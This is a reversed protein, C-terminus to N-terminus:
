WNVGSLASVSGPRMMGWSIPLVMRLATSWTQFMSVAEFGATGAGAPGGHVSIGAGVDVEEAIDLTGDAKVAQTPPTADANAMTLTATDSLDFAPTGNGTAFDAADIAIVSNNPVNESVILSGFFKGGEVDSKYIYDGTATTLLSLGLARDPHMIVVVNRRQDLGGLLAKVDTNINAPTNGSSATAAVGFLLGAPRVGPRQALNSLLKADILETTDNSISERIVREIAPASLNELEKSFTSIVALKYREFLDTALQGQKVPIVGTEGVFAGALTGRQARRPVVLSGNNGFELTTGRSSLANYVSVDLIEALFQGTGQQVLEAAWGPRGTTAIDTASKALWDIGAKVREDDRYLDGCVQDVSRRTQHALAFAAAMKVILDGAKETKPTAPVTAPLQSAPVARVALAREIAVNANISRVVDDKEDGLSAIQATEDETFARNNEGEAALQITSLEDDIAVARAQLQVIKQSIPTPQMTRTGLGPPASRTPARPSAGSPNGARLPAPASRSPDRFILPDLPDPALGKIRLANANMPVSVLSCELLETATFRLGGTEKLESYELPLFGVSVARIIRQEILQRIRDVLASTGKAALELRGRLQGAVQRVDAWVGIPAASDHNWLAIPNRKFDALEIGGIEIIDGARDVDDSAMVFEFPDSASQEGTKVVRSLDRRNDPQRAPSAPM